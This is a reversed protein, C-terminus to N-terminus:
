MRTITEQRLISIKNVGAFLVTDVKDAGIYSDNIILQSNLKLHDVNFNERININWFGYIKDETVQKTICKDELYKLNLRMLKPYKVNYSIMKM